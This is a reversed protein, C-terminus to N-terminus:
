LSVKNGNFIYNYSFNVEETDILLEKEFGKIRQDWIQKAIYNSTETATSFYSELATGSELIIRIGPTDLVDELSQVPLKFHNVTVFSVLVANYVWFIM